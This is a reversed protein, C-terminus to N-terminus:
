FLELQIIKKQIKKISSKNVSDDYINTLSNKMKQIKAAPDNISNEYPLSFYLYLESELMRVLENIDLIVSQDDECESLLAQIINLFAITEEQGITKDIIRRILSRCFCILSSDPEREMLSLGILRLGEAQGFLIIINDTLKEDNFNYEICKNFAWLALRSAAEPHDKRIEKILLSVTEAFLDEGYIISENLDDIAENFFRNQETIKAALKKESKSLQQSINIGSMNRLVTSLSAADSNATIGALLAEMRHFDHNYFAKIAYILNKWDENTEAEQLAAFAEPNHMGNTAAEFADSIVTSPFTSIRTYM